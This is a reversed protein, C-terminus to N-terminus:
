NLNRWWIRCLYGCSQRKIAVCAVKPSREYLNNPCKRDIWLFFEISLTLNCHFTCTLPGITVIPINLLWFSVKCITLVRTCHLLYNFYFLRLEGVFLSQMSRLLLFLMMIVYLARKSAAILTPNQFHNLLQHLCQLKKQALQLLQKLDRFLMCLRNFM